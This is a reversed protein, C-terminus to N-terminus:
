RTKASVGPSRAKASAASYTSGNSSSDSPQTPGTDVSSAWELLPYLQGEAAPDAAAGLLRGRIVKRSSQVDKPKVEMLETSVARPLDLLDIITRRVCTFTIDASDIAHRAIKDLELFGHELGDSAEKATVYTDHDGDFIVQERIQERMIQWRPRNPDDTVVDLMEALDKDSKSLERKTQRLVAETLNEV